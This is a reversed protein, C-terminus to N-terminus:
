SFLEFSPVLRHYLMYNRASSGGLTKGRAYHLTRNNAGQFLKCDAQTSIIEGEILRVAQPVTDFAWDVLPQFNKVSSGTFFTAEGPVVSLNGNDIEYFGGAEIVAVTLSPDAALRTAITLGANGGGVIVYDFIADKGPVGFQTGLIPQLQGDVFLNPAASAASLLHTFSLFSYLRM